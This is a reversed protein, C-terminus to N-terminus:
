AGKCVRYFTRTCPIQLPKDEFSILETIRMEAREVTFTRNHYIFQTTESRPNYFVIQGFRQPAMEFPLKTVIDCVPTFGTGSLSALLAHCQDYVYQNWRERLITQESKQIKHSTQLRDRVLNRIEPPLDMVDAHYKIYNLIERIDDRRERDKIRQEKTKRYHAM